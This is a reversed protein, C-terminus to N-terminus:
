TRSASTSAHSASHRPSEVREDLPVSSTPQGSVAHARAHSKVAASHERLQMNALKFTLSSMTPQGVDAPPRSFLPSSCLSCDESADKNEGLLGSSRFDRRDYVVQRNGHGSKRGGKGGRGGDTSTTRSNGGRRTQSRSRSRRSSPTNSGHRVNSRSRGRRSSPATRQHREASRSRTRRHRSTPPSRT